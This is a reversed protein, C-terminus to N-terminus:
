QCTFTITSKPVRTTLVTVDAKAGGASYTRDGTESWAMETETISVATARCSRKISSSSIIWSNPGGSIGAAGSAFVSSANTGPVIGVRAGVGRTRANVGGEGVAVGGGGCERGWGVVLCGRGVWIGPGEGVAPTAVRTEVPM